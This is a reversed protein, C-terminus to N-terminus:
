KNVNTSETRRMMISARRRRRMKTRVVERIKEIREERNENGKEELCHPIHNIVTQGIVFLLNPTEEALDNFAETM